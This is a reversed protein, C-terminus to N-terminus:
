SFRLTSRIQLSSSSSVPLFPRAPSFSSSLTSEKVHSLWGGRGEPSFPEELPLSKNLMIVLM